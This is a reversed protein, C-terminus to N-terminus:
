YGSTIGAIVCSANGLRLVPVAQELAEMPSLQGTDVILIWQYLDTMLPM